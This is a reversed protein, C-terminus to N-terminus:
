STRKRGSARAVLVVAGLMGVGLAVRKFKRLFRTFDSEHIERYTNLEDAHILKGSAFGAAFITLHSFILTRVTATM